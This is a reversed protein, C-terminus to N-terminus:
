SADTAQYGADNFCPNGVYNGAADSTVYIGSDIIAVKVGAGANGQGGVQNWLTRAGIQEPTAYMDLHLAIDPTVARVGAVGRVAQAEAASM